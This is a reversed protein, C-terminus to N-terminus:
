YGTREENYTHIAERLEFVDRRDAQRSISVDFEVMVVFNDELSRQPAERM